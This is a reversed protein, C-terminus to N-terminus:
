ANAASKRAMEWCYPVRFCVFTVANVPNSNRLYQKKKLVKNLFKVYMVVM